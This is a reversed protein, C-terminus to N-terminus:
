TRAVDELVQTGLRSEIRENCGAHFADVQRASEILTLHLHHVRTVLTRSTVDLGDGICKM